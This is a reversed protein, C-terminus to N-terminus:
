IRQGHIIIKAPEAAGVPQLSKRQKAEEKAEEEKEWASSTLSVIIHGFM